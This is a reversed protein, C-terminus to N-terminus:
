FTLTAWALQKWALEGGVSIPSKLAAILDDSAVHSSSLTLNCIQGWNSVAFRFDSQDFLEAINKKTLEVASLEPLWKQDVVTARGFWFYRTKTSIMNQLSMFNELILKGGDNDMKSYQPTVVTATSSLILM